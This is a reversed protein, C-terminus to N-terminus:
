LGYKQKMTILDYAQTIRRMWIETSWNGSNDLMYMSGNNFIKFNDASYLRNYHSRPSSCNLNVGNSVRSAVVYQDVIDVIQRNNRNYCIVRFTGINGSLIMLGEHRIGYFNWKIEWSSMQQAHSTISFTLLYFLILLKTAKKM